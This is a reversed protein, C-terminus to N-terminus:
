SHPARLGSQALTGEILEKQREKDLYQDIAHRFMAVIKQRIEPISRDMYELSDYMCISIKTDTPKNDVWLTM